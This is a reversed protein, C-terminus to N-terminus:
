KKAVKVFWCGGSKQTMIWGVWSFELILFSGFYKIMKKAV